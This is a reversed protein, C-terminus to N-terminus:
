GDIPEAARGHGGHRRRQLEIALRARAVAARKRMVEAARERAAKDAGATLEGHAEAIEEWAMDLYYYQLLVERDPEALAAIAADVQDRDEARGLEATISTAPDPLPAQVATGSPSVYELPAERDPSRRAANREDAADRIMGEAIKVLWRLLSSEDRMEFADFKQLAKLFTRTMIDVSDTWSRVRVGMRIGVARRVRDYYRELVRELAARDGAQAARVLDVTVAATHNM